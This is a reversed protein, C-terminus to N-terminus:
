LNRKRYGSRYWSIECRLYGYYFCAEEYKRFPKAADADYNGLEAYKQDVLDNYAKLSNSIKVLKNENHGLNAFLSLQMDRRRIINSRVNLEYGRNQMEGVNDKYSTFGTSSPITVDNVLDVTRKNYYAFSIYFLRKLLGLEFGFDTQYTTEWGLNVNGMAIMNAGM